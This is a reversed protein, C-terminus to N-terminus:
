LLVLLAQKSQYQYFMVRGYFFSMDLNMIKKQFSGDYLFNTKLM